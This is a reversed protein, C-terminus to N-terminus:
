TFKRGNEQIYIDQMDDEEETIFIDFLKNELRKHREREKCRNVNSVTIIYELELTATYNWICKIPLLFLSTNFIPRKDRYYANKDSIDQTSDLGNKIVNTTSRFEV